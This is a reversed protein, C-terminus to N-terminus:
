GIRQGAPLFQVGAPDLHGLGVGVLHHRPAQLGAHGAVHERQQRVLHGVEAELLSRQCINELGPHLLRNGIVLAPVLLGSLGGLLLPDPVARHDGLDTGFIGLVVLDRIRHGLCSVVM